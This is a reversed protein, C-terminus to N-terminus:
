IKKSPGAGARVDVASDELSAEGTGAALAHHPHDCEDGLAADDAADEVV